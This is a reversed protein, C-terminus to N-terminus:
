AEMKKSFLPDGKFIGMTHPFPDKETEVTLSDSNRHNEDFGKREGLGFLSVWEM